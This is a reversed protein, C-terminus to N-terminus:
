NDYYGKGYGLRNNFKDFALLPILMVDPIVSRKNEIPELIGFQNIQLVDNKDWNYFSMENDKKVRPYLIKFKKVINTEYIKLVDVEYSSPFYSSLIIKKKKLKPNIVRIFPNFFNKDIEFYRNKRILLFKKRLKEKSLM